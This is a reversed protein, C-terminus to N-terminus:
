TFVAYEEIAKTTMLCASCSATCSAYKLLHALSLLSAASLQEQQRIPYFISLIQLLAVHICDIAVYCLGPLVEPNDGRAQGIREMVKQLKIRM